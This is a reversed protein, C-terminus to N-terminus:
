LQVGSKCSVLTPLDMVVIGARPFVVSTQNSVVQQVSDFTLFMVVLHRKLRLLNPINHVSSVDRTHVMIRCQLKPVSTLVSINFPDFLKM